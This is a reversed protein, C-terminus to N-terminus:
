SIAFAMGCHIRQGYSRALMVCVLQNPCFVSTVPSIVRLRCAVAMTRTARCLVETFADATEQKDAVFVIKSGLGSCTHDKACSVQALVPSRSRAPQAARIASTLTRAVKHARHVTRFPHEAIM